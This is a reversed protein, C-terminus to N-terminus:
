LPFRFRSNTKERDQPLLKKIQKYEASKKKGAEEYLHHIGDVLEGMSLYRNEILAHELIELTVENVLGINRGKKKTKDKVMCSFACFYTWYLCM